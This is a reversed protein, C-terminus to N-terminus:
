PGAAAAAPLLRLAARDVAALAMPVEDTGGLVIRVATREGGLQLPLRGDQLGPGSSRWEGQPSRVSVTVGAPVDVKIVVEADQREGDAAALQLLAGDDVTRPAFPPGPRPGFGEAWVARPITTVARGIVGADPGLAGVTRARFPRLDFWALVGDGSTRAAAGTLSTVQDLLAGGGDDYARRNVWLGDFGAVAVADLLVPLPQAAWLEQWDAERGKLGGHSWRLRGTGLVYPRLQDYDVMRGQPGAEPFRSFPLQFVMAEAPLAAEIEHVFRREADVEAVTVARGAVPHRPVQDLLGVVVLVALAAGVPLRGFRAAAATALLAVAALGLLAIVLSTRGWARINTFGALAILVGGGGRGGVLLMALLVGALVGPLPPVRVGGLGAFCAGLLAAIGLIGVLGAYSGKEGAFPVDGVETGLRALADVRHTAEPVVLTAPRLGYLDNEGVTRQAVERNRGEARQHLLTPLVNVVLVAAVAVAVLGGVLLPRAARCRVAGVVAAAVIAIAGFVAYYGSASGLVLVSVGAVAWRWWPSSRGLRGDAVWVGLLVALPIAVYMSLFLHGPGHSFHYPLFAYLLAAAGAPLADSGLSRLTLHTVGAIVGFSLLYYLNVVALASIPLESLVRLVVLHLHDPGLPFDVLDQGNPAGLRPGASYWGELQMSRVFSAHLIADLRGDLPQALRERSWLGLVLVALLQSAVATLCAELALRRGRREPPSPAVSWPSRRGGSM